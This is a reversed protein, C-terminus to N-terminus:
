GNVLHVARAILIEINNQSCYLYISWLIIVTDINFQICESLVFVCICM